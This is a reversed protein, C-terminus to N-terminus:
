RIRCMQDPQDPYGVLCPLYFRTQVLVVTICSLFPSECWYPWHVFCQVNAHWTNVNYKRWIFAFCKGVNCIQPYITPQMDLANSWVILSIQVPSSFCIRHVIYLYINWEFATYCLQLHVVDFSPLRERTQLNISCLIVSKTSYLQLLFHRRQGHGM